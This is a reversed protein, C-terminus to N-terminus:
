KASSTQGTLSPSKTPGFSVNSETDIKLKDGDFQFKMTMTFPTTYLPLKSTYESTSTWAGSAAVPQAPAGSFQYESNIWKQYGHPITITKGAIELQIAVSNNPGIEFTVGEINQANKEIAYRKKNIADAVSSTENGALTPLQLSALKTALQKAADSNEPLTESQFAPLLKNWVLNLVSQMDKVGSTIAIVADHEPLVICYQGFAGDGRFANHRCRWFQYGYGQDWDSSPNSGNSTQRSTAQEVWSAPVLQKGQWSGRQLYLQGFKAIDETRVNLGYGGLSVGQPSTGWTPNDIALPEFLRSKLYELTTQGTKKQIIASLMYTAPTNYLFHTGPKHAVKHNLFTKTWPETPGVRPESEHGTSMCLLDRIRMQKLQPSPEAPADEPFFKYVEDDLSIIGESIAVGVATSTFSKSLSYLEHRADANYPTWWGEAIVHGHRVIMVSHFSEIEKDAANVFELLKASSVGQAEPASRPLNSQAENPETPTASAISTFSMSIFLLCLLLPKMPSTGNSLTITRLNYPILGNHERATTTFQACNKQYLEQWPHALDM